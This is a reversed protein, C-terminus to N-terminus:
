RDKIHRADQSIRPGTAGAADWKYQMSKWQEADREFSATFISQLLIRLAYM